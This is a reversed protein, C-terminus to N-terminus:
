MVVPAGELLTTQGGTSKKTNPCSAYSSDAKGRIVFEHNPSRDWTRNPKMTLGRNKTYVCYTMVRYMAKLHSLTASTMHKSLERVANLVEPRSWRMM